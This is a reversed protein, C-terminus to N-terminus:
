EKYIDQLLKKGLLPRYHGPEYYHQIDNTYINDGSFDWVNNSSFIRQLEKLDAPNMRKQYYDPSIVIMIETSNHDCVTKIDKLLKKQTEFIVSSEIEGPHRKKRLFEEEHKNWYNIGEKEIEKERPNLFNNTYPERIPRTELVVHKMSPDYEQTIKYKLFPICKKPSLFAQLYRIRLQTETIGASSPSFIRNVNLSPTTEMFSKTDLVILLHDLQANVEALANIKQHLGGLNEGNEFFRVAKAGKPLYKEWEDTRFAMTCSNGMIFANFPISDRNNLYNQWGVYGEGLYFESQDFRKYKKLVMDPDYILYMAILPMFPLALVFLKLVLKLVLYKSGIGSANKIM